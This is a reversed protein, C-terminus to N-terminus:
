FDINPNGLKEQDPLPYCTHPGYPSGRQNVGTEFDDTTVGPIDLRLIDGVKTGQLFLERRREEWVAAEQEEATMGAWTAAAITPLPWATEDIESALGSPDTRLNNIITLAQSPDAEAIMLQAERWTAFPIDTGLDTYKLQGWMDSVGDFGVGLGYHELPVRPDPVGGVMLNTWSPHVTSGSNGGSQTVYQYLRNYLRGLASDMFGYRVYGVDVQSADDLVDQTNGLNLHARARGVYAMNRIADAAAGATNAHDIASTFSAVARNMADARTALPGGDFALECMLEGLMQYAYGTYANATALLLERNPVSAAEFGEILSIANEGQGRAIQLPLYLQPFTNTECTNQDFIEVERSRLQTLRGRSFNDAQYLDNGWLGGAWVYRGLACDFDGQVGRVLAEALRPDDLDAAQVQGPLEVELLSDCAAGALAILACV